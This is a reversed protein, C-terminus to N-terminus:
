GWIGRLHTSQLQTYIQTSDIRRHGLYDQIRRTDIGKAALHHGCSHRLMHAHVGRGPLAKEGLREVMRSFSVAAWPGGRESTFLFRTGPAQDRQLRRLLRLEDGSLDHRSPVGRKVRRVDVRGANFDVQSWELGVLESARLGHRYALLVALHDRLGYRTGKAAKLLTDLEAESLYEHGRKTSQESKGLQPGETRPSLLTAAM